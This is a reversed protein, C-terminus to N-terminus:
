KPNEDRKSAFYERIKQIREPRIKYWDYMQTLSLSSEGYQIHNEFNLEYYYRYLEYVNAIADNNTKVNELGYEKLIRDLQRALSARDEYRKGNFEILAKYEESNSERKKDKMFKDLVGDYKELTIHLFEMILKLEGEVISKDNLERVDKYM